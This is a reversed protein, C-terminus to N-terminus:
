KLTDKLKDIEKQQNVLYMTLEEIKQLLLTNVEELNLGALKIKEASPVGPLHKNSKYFQEVEALSLLNYDDDFVYDAWNGQLTVYVSNAVLKGDVALSFDTHTGTTPKKGIWVQAKNTSSNLRFQILNTPSNINTGIQGVGSADIGFNYSLISNTTWLYSSNASQSSMQLAAPGADHIDLTSLPNANNLGMRGNKLFLRNLGSGPTGENIAFSKGGLYHMNIDTTSELNGVADGYIRFNSAIHANGDRIDLAASPSANLFGIGVHSNPLIYVSKKNNAKLIFPFENCTGIDTAPPPLTPGFGGPPVIINNGGLAWFSANILCPESATSPCDLCESGNGPDSQSFISYNVFISFAVLLSKLNTTKM